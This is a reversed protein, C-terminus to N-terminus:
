GSISVRYMERDSISVAVAHLQGVGGKGGVAGASCGTEDRGKRPLASWRMVCVKAPSVARGHGTRRQLLRRAKGLPVYKGGLVCCRELLEWVGGVRYLSPPRSLALLSAGRTVVCGYGRCLAVCKLGVLGLGM